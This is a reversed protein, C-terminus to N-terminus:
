VGLIPFIIEILFIILAVGFVIVAAYGQVQGTQQRRLTRGSRITKLSLANVLGDVGRRDFLDNLNSLALGVKATANVVGDIVYRDFWDCVISFGYVAKKAFANYTDDIWYRNSLMKHLFSGTKSATFAEARINKTYYISYALTLGGLGAFLSLYTLPNSFTEIIIELATAEHTHEYFVFNGFGGMLFILLGSGFAFAALITLPVTMVRPSEHVEHHSRSEGSFTMFWARFMYFATMFATVVGLVFLLLFISNISGSQFVAALVEDKSWFGSFPPIGSISIAGILMTISTIKMKSHLGGMLRMDNTHMAHIVSGAALFMLAKFFAHNMLHFLSSSYGATNKYLGILIAGVGLALIMYGIQSITSFALVRKIDYNVIAMTAALFATFGGIIAIILSADPAHILFLYSRAVLYVGGKVMTAAHILASVTTPGEMADPLWVHLPFQASKGMAGGFLLLSILTVFRIDLTGGEIREGITSSISDFNLSGFEILIAIIGVLFLVDGIRTVLFAKKAASAAEPKKYWFGILLYSCLGMTEWFILLQLFNDASVTGLMGAVFLSIEAYYRPKGEERGMYGISYIAILLSLFSVLVLMLASLNDILIGFTIPEMWTFLVIGEHVEGGIAGLSLVQILLVLSLVFSIAISAITIPAGGEWVWKGFLICLLFGILPMAVILWAYEFM